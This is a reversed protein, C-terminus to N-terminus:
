VNTTVHMVCMRVSSVCQLGQDGAVTVRVNPTVFGAKRKQLIPSGIILIM